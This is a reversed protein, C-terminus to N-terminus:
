QGGSLSIMVDRSMPSGSKCSARDLREELFQKTSLLLPENMIRSEDAVFEHHELIDCSQEAQISVPDIPLPIDNVCLM